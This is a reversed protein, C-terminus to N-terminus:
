GAAPAAPADAGGTATRAAADEQGSPAEDDEASRARVAWTLLALGVTFSAITTAVEGSFLSWLVRSGAIMVGTAGVAVAGGREAVLGFVLYGLVILLAGFAGIGSPVAHLELAAFALLSTSGIWALRSTRGTTRTAWLLWGAGITLHLLGTLAFDDSAVDRLFLALVPDVLAGLDDIGFRDSMATGFPGAAYILAIPVGLQRLSSRPARRVAALAYAAAGLGAVAVAARAGDDLLELLALTLSAGLTAAGALWMMSTLSALRERDRQEVFLAAATLGGTAGALVLARGYRDLEEWTASLFGVVAALVLLTGIGGVLEPLRDRWPRTPEDDTPRAAPGGSDRPPTPADHHSWHGRDGHPPPALVPGPPPPPATETPRSTQQETM